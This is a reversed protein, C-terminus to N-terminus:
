VFAPCTRWLHLIGRRYLQDARGRSFGLREGIEAFDMDHLVHLIVCRADRPDLADLVRQWDEFGWLMREAKALGSMLELEACLRHYWQSSAAIADQATM